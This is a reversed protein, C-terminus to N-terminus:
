VFVRNRLGSLSRVKKRRLWWSPRWPSRRSSAPTPSSVRLLVWGSTSARPWGASSAMAVTNGLSQCLGSSSWCPTPYPSSVRLCHSWFSRGQPSYFVFFITFNLAPSPPFLFSPPRKLRRLSHLPRTKATSETQNKCPRRKKKKSRGRQRFYDVIETQFSRTYLRVDYVLRFCVM